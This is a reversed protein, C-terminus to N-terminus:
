INGKALPLSNCLTSFESWPIKYDVELACQMADELKGLSQLASVVVEWYSSQANFFEIQANLYTILDSEKSEYQLHAMLNAFLDGEKSEFQRRAIQLQKQQLLLLSYSLNMKKVDALYTLLAQEVEASINAQLAKFRAHVEDRKAIAEAIPGQNQNFVPLEFGIGLYWENTGQDWIYGPNLSIDPIQKRIELRLAEESAAYESLTSLIDSRNLLACSKMISIKATEESPMSSLAAFDFSTTKLANMAVGLSAALQSLALNEQKEIEHLSVTIQNLQIQAKNLEPSIEGEGEGAQSEKALAQVIKEQTIKQKEFFPKRQRASYLLLFNNQVASRTQWAVQSISFQIAQASHSAHAIRIARKGATEIPIELDPTLTWRSNSGSSSSSSSSSQSSTTAPTTAPTSGTSAKPSKSLSAGRTGSTGAIASTNNGGGGSSADYIPLFTFTPNPIMGATVISAKTVEWNANAVDLNPNYFFAAQTLLELDWVPLPWSAVPRALKEEIFLKLKPDDLSRAQFATLTENPNLPKAKYTTCCTCLVLAGSLLFITRNRM